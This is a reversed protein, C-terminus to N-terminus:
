RVLSGKIPREALKAGEDFDPALFVFIAVGHRGVELLKLRARALVRVDVEVVRTIIRVPEEGWDGIRCSIRLGEGTHQIADSFFRLEHTVVVRCGSFLEDEPEGEAVVAGFLFLVLIAARFFLNEAPEVTLEQEDELIM